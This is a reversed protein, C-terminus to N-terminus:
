SCPQVERYVKIEKPMYLPMYIFTDDPIEIIDGVKLTEVKSMGNIHIYPNVIVAKKDALDVCDYLDTNDARRIVELKM